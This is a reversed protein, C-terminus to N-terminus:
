LGCCCLLGHSPLRCSYCTFDLINQFTSIDTILGIFCLLHLLLDHGEFCAWFDLTFLYALKVPISLRRKSHRWVRRRRRRRISTVVELPFVSPGPNTHHAAIFQIFFLIYLYRPRTQLGLRYLTDRHGNIILHSHSLAVFNFPHQTFSFSGISKWDQLCFPLFYSSSHLNCHHLM